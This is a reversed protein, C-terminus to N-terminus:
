WHGTNGMSAWPEAPPLDEGEQLLEVSINDDGYYPPTRETQAETQAWSGQALFVSAILAFVGAFFCAAFHKPSLPFFRAHIM